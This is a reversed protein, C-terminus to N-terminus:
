KCLLRDDVLEVGLQARAVIQVAGRAKEEQAGLDLQYRVEQVLRPGNLQRYCVQRLGM